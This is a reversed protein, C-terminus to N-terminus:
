SFSIHLQQHIAGYKQTVTLKNTLSLLKEIIEECLMSRSFFLRTTALLHNMYSLKHKNSLPTVKNYKVLYKCMRSNDKGVQGTIFASLLASEILYMLFMHYGQFMYMNNCQANYAV